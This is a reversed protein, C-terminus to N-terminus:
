GCRTLAQQARGVLNQGLDVGQLRFKGTQPAPACPPQMNRNFAM